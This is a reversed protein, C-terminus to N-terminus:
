SVFTYYVSGSPAILPGWNLTRFLNASPNGIADSYSSVALITIGGNSDIDRTEAYIVSTSGTGNTVNFFAKKGVQGAYSTLATGGIPNVLTYPSSSGSLITPRDPLINNLAPPLATSFATSGLVYGAAPNPITGATVNMLLSPSAGISVTVSAVDNSQLRARSAATGVMTFLGNVTYTTGAQLTCTFGAGGHTFNNTTWGAAGTFTANGSLVLNSQITNLTNQAVTAGSGITLNWFIFNNITVSVIPITITSAGPTINGATRSLTKSAAGWTISGLISVSAGGTKNVTLNNQITNVQTASGWTGAGTGDLEIDSTGSLNFCNLTGQVSIKSGNCIFSTTISTSTFNNQVIIPQSITVTTSGTQTSTINGWLIQTGGPLGAGTATNNTNIVAGSRLSLTHGTASYVSVISTGLLNLTGSFLFTPRTANGFTYGSVNTTNINITFAIQNSSEIVGTGIMNVVGGGTYTINGSLGTDNALLGGGVNVNFAGTFGCASSGLTNTFSLNNSMNLNSTLTVLSTLTNNTVNYWTVTSTNLTKAVSTTLFLTNLNPTLTSTGLFTVVGGSVTLNASLILSNGTNINFARGAVGGWTLAGTITVTAPSTKNLTLNNAVSGASITSNSSGIMEITSTGAIGATPVINGSVFVTFSGNISGLVAAAASLNGSVNMNSNLTIAQGGASLFGISNFTIGSVNNFIVSTGGVNLAATSTFAGGTYTFTGTSINLSNQTVSTGNIEIIFQSTSAGTYNGTISSTGSMIFTINTCTAGGGSTLSGGITITRMSAATLIHNTGTSAIFNGTIIWNDGFTTTYGGLTAMTLSGSWTKGNSTLTGTSGSKVLIGTGTVSFGAAPSLTFNNVVTLTNAMSLTGGFSGTTVNTFYINAATAGATVAVTGTGSNSDFYADDATTPVSFGTAGTSTDSWNTTSNWNGNGGPRWYRNPM